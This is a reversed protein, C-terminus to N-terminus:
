RRGPAAPWSPAAAPAARGPVMCRGPPCHRHRCPKVHFMVACTCVSRRLAPTAPGGAPVTVLAM